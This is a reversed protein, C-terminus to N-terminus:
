NLKFKADSEHDMDCSNEFLVIVVIQKSMACYPALTLQYACIVCPFALCQFLVSALVANV